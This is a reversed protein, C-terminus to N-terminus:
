SCYLHLGHYVVYKELYEVNNFILIGRYKLCILIYIKKKKQWVLSMHFNGLWADSGLWLQLRHWVQLLVMDKVWQAV